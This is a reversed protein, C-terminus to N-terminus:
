FSTSCTQCRNNIKDHPPLSLRRVPAVGQQSHGQTRLRGRINSSGRIVPVYHARGNTASTADMKSGSKSSRSGEVIARRWREGRYLHRNCTITSNHDNARRSVGIYARYFLAGSRGGIKLSVRAVRFNILREVLFKGLSSSGKVRIM